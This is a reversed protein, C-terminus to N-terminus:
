FWHSYDNGGRVQEIADAYRCASMDSEVASKVIRKIEAVTSYIPAYAIIDRSDPGATLAIFWEHVRTDISRDQPKAYVKMRGGGLAKGITISYTRTGFTEAKKDADAVSIRGDYLRKGGYTMVSATM